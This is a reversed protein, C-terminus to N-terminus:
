LLSGIATDLDDLKFPKGLVMDVTEDAQGVETDGTLLVIPLDPFSQRIRAALQRGNMDPMGHDTIVIDFKSSSDELLELAASGSERAAVEHGRLSLLRTILSRVMPEDDVVLVHAPRARAPPKEPRQPTKAALGTPFRLTFETGRGTESTVGISGEHEQIIGYSVALGMGSGRAGKTTFLPEFIRKRVHEPMGVGTDRLRVEVTKDDTITSAIKLVGGEPMAQVANLILNIFVERLETESGSIPPTPPLDLEVEICIGVRRPENFWYPRTLSVSEQILSALDVPVFQTQQEQRIYQQIKRILAAGDLAAREITELYERRDAATEPVDPSSKLLETYGLIGSLLNNFDHAIGMTMRGLTEIRNRQTQNQMWTDPERLVEGTVVVASVVDRSERDAHVPLFNLLLPLSEDASEPLLFFENTALVGRRADLLYQSARAQEDKTLRAWADVDDGLIKKWVNNRSAVTGDPGFTAMLLDPQIHPLPDLESFSAAFEM